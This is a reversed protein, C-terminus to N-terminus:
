YKERYNRSNCDYDCKTVWHGGNEVQYEIYRGEVFVKGYRQSYEVHAPIYERRWVYHPVWVRKCPEKYVYVHREEHVRRPGQVFDIMTGIPDIRGGSIIRVGEIGTLIKGAVDWDSAFAPAIFGILLTSILLFMSIKKM